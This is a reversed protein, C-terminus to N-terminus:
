SIKHNKSQRKMTYAFGENGKGRVEVFIEDSNIKRYVIRKPFSHDPNEFSFIKEEPDTLHETRYNLTFHITKGDNQNLVTAAYILDGDVFKIELYETIVQKGEIIKYGYGKLHTGDPRDWHEYINQGEAKWTGELFAPFNHAFGTSIGFFTMLILSLTITKFHRM